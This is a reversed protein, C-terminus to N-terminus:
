ASFTVFASMGAFLQVIHRQHPHDTRWYESAPQGRALAAALMACHKGSCNHYRRSPREGNRILEDRRKEYLPYSPPCVLHEESLGLKSLTAEIEVIHAQEGGHSAAALAIQAETYGFRDFAGTEAAAVAQLPKGSSRVFYVSNPDGVSAVLNGCVDVVAAAGRHVTEIVEARRSRVLPVTPEAM